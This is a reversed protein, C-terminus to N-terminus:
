TSTLAHASTPPLSYARLLAVAQKVTTCEAVIKELFNHAFEPKDPDYPTELNPSMPM